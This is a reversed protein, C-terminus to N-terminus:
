GNVVNSIIINLAIAHNVLRQTFPLDGLITNMKQLVFRQRETNNMGNSKLHNLIFHQCNNNAVDYWKMKDWGGIYNKHNTFMEGVTRDMASILPMFKIQGKWQKERTSTIGIKPDYPFANLRDQRDVLWFTGDKLHFLMFLHYLNDYRMKKLRAELQNKSIINLLETFTKEVPVRGLYVANVQVNEKDKLWKKFEPPLVSIEDLIGAGAVEGTMLVRVENYESTGKKPITWKDRGENWKKLADIWKM